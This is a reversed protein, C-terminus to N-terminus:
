SREEQIIGSLHNKDLVVQRHAAIYDQRAKNIIRFYHNPAPVHPIKKLINVAPLSFELEGYNCLTQLLGERFKKVDQIMDLNFTNKHDRLFLTQDLDVIRFNTIIVIQLYYNLFRLFFRHFYYTIFTSSALFIVQFYLQSRLSPFGMSSESFLFFLFLLGGIAFAFIYPILVIWHKRFTCLVVEDQLQGKFHKDTNDM